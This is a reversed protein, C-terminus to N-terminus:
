HDYSTGDAGRRLVDVDCPARLHAAGRAPIDGLPGCLRAHLIRHDQRTFMFYPIVLGSALSMAADIWWLTHATAVAAADGILSPGFALFGNIITALGMPVAGFFMSMVPHEFIRRAEHPFIAWRAAYVLTFAAFLIIDALWLMVAAGGAGPIHSPFQNLCLALGGTGM